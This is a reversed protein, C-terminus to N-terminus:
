RQGTTMGSPSRPPDVEIVGDAVVLLTSHGAEIEPTPMSGEDLRSVAMARLVPERQAGQSRLDLRVLRYGNADLSDSLLAARGKFAAVAERLLQEEHQRRSTPSLSFHMGALQLREQLQGTLRALAAFDASELRLEARERWAVIRRGAEDHVPRSARSGLRSDVGAVARSQQLAENLERTIQAALEAPRSKQQEIYLIVHMRDHAVERSVEARLSVQNYRLEEAYLAPASLASGLTLALFLPRIPLM